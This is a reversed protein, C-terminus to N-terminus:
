RRLYERLRDLNNGTVEQLQALINPKFGAPSFNRGSIDFIADTSAISGVVSRSGRYFGVILYERSPRLVVDDDRFPRSILMGDVVMEGYSTGLLCENPLLPLFKAPLDEDPIPDSPIFGRDQLAEIIELKYWTSFWAYRGILTDWDLVRVHLFSYQSKAESLRPVHAFCEITPLLELHKHGKARADAIEERLWERLIQESEVRQRRAAAFRRFPVQVHWITGAVFAVLLGQGFM